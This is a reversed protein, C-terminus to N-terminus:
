GIQGENAVTFQFELQNVGGLALAEIGIARLDRAFEETFGHVTFVQKPGVAQVYAILDDYGAHDSLPFAADCRYRYTAGRDMAWGTVVAVRLNPLHALADRTNPPFILVKGQFDGCGAERYSSLTVGFSEYIEAMRHIAGHLATELGARALIALLEQAKGISYALLVPICDEQLAKRCFATIDAAVQEADPFRYRPLGFTTEMVLVDAHVPEAAESTLSKRLKFDGTYLITGAECELFVQASGLVHGAPLLTIRAGPVEVPEHFPIERIFKSKRHGRRARMLAATAPTLLTEEHWAAHDSHAHSVVGLRRSKLSDFWVDCEPVHIGREQRITMM